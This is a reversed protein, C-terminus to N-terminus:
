FWNYAWLGVNFNRLDANKAFRPWPYPLSSVMVAV